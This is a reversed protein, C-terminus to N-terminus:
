AEDMLPIKTAKLDWKEMPIGQEHGHEEAMLETLTYSCSM